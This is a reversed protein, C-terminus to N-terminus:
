VKSEIPQSTAPSDLRQARRVARLVFLNWGYFGRTFRKTARDLADLWRMAWPPAAVNVIREPSVDFRAKRAIKCLANAPLRVAWYWTNVAFGITMDHDLVELGCSQFFTRWELPSRFQLHAEGRPLTRGSKLAVRTAIEPLTRRNPVTCFMLGDPALLSRFLSITVEPQELHEICDFATILHFNGTDPISDALTPAHVSTWDYDSAYSRMLELDLDVATVRYGREALDFTERLSGAGFDLVNSDLPVSGLHREYIAWRYPVNRTNCGVLKPVDRSRDFTRGATV